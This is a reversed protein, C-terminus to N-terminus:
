AAVEFEVDDEVEVVKHSEEMVADPDEIDLMKTMATGIDQTEELM